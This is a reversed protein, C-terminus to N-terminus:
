PDEPESGPTRRALKRIYGAIVSIAQKEAGKLASEPSPGIASVAAKGGGIQKGSEDKMVVDIEIYGTFVNTDSHSKPARDDYDYRLLTCELMLLPGSQLDMVKRRTVRHVLDKRFSQLFAASPVAFKSSAGEKQVVQVLAQKLPSADVRDFEKLSRTPSGSAVFEPTGCGAAALLLLIAVGLRPNM